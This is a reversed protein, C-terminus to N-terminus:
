NPWPDISVFGLIDATKRSVIALVDQKRGVVPLGGVDAIPLSNDELVQNLQDEQQKNLSFTDLSLLRDTVEETFNTYPEYYKPRFEVDKGGEMVQFLVKDSEKEDKIWAAVLKPGSFGLPLWQEDVQEKKIDSASVVVYRDKSYVLFAPRSDVLVYSGYILAALQVAVIISLDFLLSKKKPKYVILTLFPGLVLDVCLMITLLGVGGEIKFYPDPYMYFITFGVVSGVVILSLVFHKFCAFLKSKLLQM